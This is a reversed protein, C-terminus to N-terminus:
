FEDLYGQSKMVDLESILYCLEDYTCTTNFVEEAKPRIEDNSPYKIEERFQLIKSALEWCLEDYKYGKQSLYYAGVNVMEHFDMEVEEVSEIEIAPATKIIRVGEEIVSEMVDVDEEVTPIEDKEVEIEIGPVEKYVPIEEMVDEIIEEERMEEQIESPGKYYPGQEVVEEIIEEDAEKTEAPGKYYPVQEIEEEIIEEEEEEEWIYDDVAEVPIEVKIKKKKPIGDTGLLDMVEEHLAKRRELDKAMSEIHGIQERLQDTSDKEEAKESVAETRYEITQTHWKVVREELNNQPEPESEPEPELELELEPEPEPELEPQPEPELEPELKAGLEAELEDEVRSEDDLEKDPTDTRHTELQQLWEVVGGKEEPIEETIVEITETPIEMELEPRREITHDERLGEKLDDMMALFAGYERGQNMLLLKARGGRKKNLVRAKKVTLDQQNLGIDQGFWLYITRDDDVLYVDGTSFNLNSLELLDGKENVSYIKM